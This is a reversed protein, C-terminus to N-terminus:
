QKKEQPGEAIFEYMQALKMLGSNNVVLFTRNGSLFSPPREITSIIDAHRTVYYRINLSYIIIWAGM